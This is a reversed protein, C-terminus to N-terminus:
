HCSIRFNASYNNCLDANFFCRKDAYLFHTIYKTAQQILAIQFNELHFLLQLSLVHTETFYVTVLLCTIFAYSAGLMTAGLAASLSFSLSLSYYVLLYLM